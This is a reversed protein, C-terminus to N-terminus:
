PAGSGEDNGRRARPQPWSLSAELAAALRSPAGVTRVGWWFLDKGDVFCAPAVTELEARQRLSFPYPESPAIVLDPRRSAAEELTTPPYPGDDAHVSAIGLGALLSAGYTPAGLAIWPRRWIPVFARRVDGGAVKPWAELLRPHGAAAIGLRAALEELADRVDPVSRVALALV